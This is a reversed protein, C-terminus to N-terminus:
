KSFLTKKLKKKTKKQQKKNEVYNIRNKLKKISNPSMKRCEGITKYNIDDKIWKKQKLM